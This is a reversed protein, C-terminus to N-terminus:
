SRSGMAGIEEAPTGKIVNPDGDKNLDREPYWVSRMSLNEAGAAKLERWTENTSAILGIPYALESHM